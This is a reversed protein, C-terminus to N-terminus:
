RKADRFAQEFEWFHKEPGIEYVPGNSEQYYRYLGKMSGVVKRNQAIISEVETRTEPRFDLWATTLSKTSPPALLLTSTTLTKGKPKMMYSFSTSGFVDGRAGRKKKPELVRGLWVKAFLTWEKAAPDPALLYIAKQQQQTKSVPPFYYMGNSFDQPIDDKAGPAFVTIAVEDGVSLNERDYTRSVFFGGTLSSLSKPGIFDTRLLKEGKLKRAVKASPVFLMLSSAGLIAVIIPFASIRAKSSKVPIELQAM